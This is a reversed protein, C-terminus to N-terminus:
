KLSRVYKLIRLMIDELEEKEENSLSFEEQHTNITEQIHTYLDPSEIDWCRGFYATAGVIYGCVMQQKDTPKM